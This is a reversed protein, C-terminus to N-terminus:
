YADGRRVEGTDGFTGSVWNTLAAVRLGADRLRELSERADPHPPLHRMGDLIEESDQDSLAVGRREATMTLAARGVASFDAYADTVTAVFASHLVQQFWAQRASADGFVRTFPADLAGLDLLTENVDFVCVRPM